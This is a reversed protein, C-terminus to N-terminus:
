RWVFKSQLTCLDGRQEYSKLAQPRHRLRPLQGKRGSRFGAGRLECAEGGARGGPWPEDGGPGRAGGGVGLM